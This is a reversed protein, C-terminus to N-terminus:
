VTKELPKGSRGWPNNGPQGIAVCPPFMVSNHIQTRIARGTVNALLEQCLRGVGPTAADMHLAATIAKSRSIPKSGM